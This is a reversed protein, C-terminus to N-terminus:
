AAPTAPRSEGGEEIAACARKGRWDYDEQRTAPRLAEHLGVIRVDEGGSAAITAAVQPAEPEDAVIFFRHHRLNKDKEAALFEKLIAHANPLDPTVLYFNGAINDSRLFTLRRRFETLDSEYEPDSRAPLFLRENWVS